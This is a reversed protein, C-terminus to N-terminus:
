PLPGSGISERVNGVRKLGQEIGQRVVDAYSGDRLADLHGAATRYCQRAEDLDGLDEHAKGMNLYLSPYFSQVRGDNVAKASNLSELNWHLVEAPTRQLRALYHAAICAEYDDQRADWAQIYCRLAREVEGAMEARVGESCLQIVPNNPDIDM